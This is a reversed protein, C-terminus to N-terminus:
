RDSEALFKANAWGTHGGYDVRCWVPGAPADAPAKRLSSGIEVCGRNSLGRANFPVVAVVPARADPQARLRLTDGCRVGRVDFRDPGDATASAAQAALSVALSIM